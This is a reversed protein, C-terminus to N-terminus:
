GLKLGVLKEWQTRPAPWRLLHTAESARPVPRPTAPERARRELPPVLGQAAPLPGQIALARARECSLLPHEPRAM